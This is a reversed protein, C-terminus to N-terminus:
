FVLFIDLYHESAPKFSASFPTYKFVRSVSSPCCICCKNRSYVSGRLSSSVRILPHIRLFVLIPGTKFMFFTAILIISCYRLEFEMETELCYRKKPLFRSQRQYTRSLISASWLLLPCIAETFGMAVALGLCFGVTVNVETEIRTRSLFHISMSVCRDSSRKHKSTDFAM